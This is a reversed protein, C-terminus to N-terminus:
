QHMPESVERISLLQALISQLGMLDIKNKLLSKVNKTLVGLNQNRSFTFNQIFHLNEVFILEKQPLIQKFKLILNKNEFSLNQVDLVFHYLALVGYPYKDVIYVINPM